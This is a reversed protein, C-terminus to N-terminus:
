NKGNVTTLGLIQWMQMGGRYYLLKSPPYGNRMLSKIARPSQDCWAGNCFLMLTKANNYDWGTPTKIAGIKQMAQTYEPSNHSAKDATLVTFPINVSGPITGKVYWDSTRADVLLGTGDKVKTLLFDLLEPEGVTTVGPAAQMPHVCFPPCERSTKAFFGTLTHSTDQIREIRIKEGGQDIDVYPLNETINVNAGYATSAGAITLIAAAFLKCLSTCRHM